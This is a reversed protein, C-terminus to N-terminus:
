LGAMGYRQLESQWRRWDPLYQDMFAYFRANHHREHLHVMEHVLVLDICEVPMRALELNLWIRRDRTNCSGWRTKMRKIGIFSPAVGIREAWPSARADLTQQLIERLFRNLGHQIQESTPTIERRHLRLIDADIEARNTRANTALRLTLPQGLCHIATGAGLPEVTHARPQQQIRIQHQRIWDQREILLAHIQKLPVHHPASVSVRGDPSKIRLYLRKISKRTLEFNLDMSPLTHQTTADPKRRSSAKTGGRPQSEPATPQSSGRARFWDLLANM